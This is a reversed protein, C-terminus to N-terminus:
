LLAVPDVDVATHADSKALGAVRLETLVRQIVGASSATIEIGFRFHGSVRSLPCAAPGRVRLQSAVESSRIAGAIM